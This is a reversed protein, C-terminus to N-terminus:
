REMAIGAVGLLLTNRTDDDLVKDRVATALEQIEDRLDHRKARIDDRQVV